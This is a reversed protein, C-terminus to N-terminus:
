EDPLEQGCNKCFRLGDVSPLVDGCFPCNKENYNGPSKKINVPNENKESESPPIISLVPPPIFVSSPIRSPPLAESAISDPIFAEASSTPRATGNANLESSDHKIADFLPKRAGNLIYAGGCVLSFSFCLFIYMLTSVSLGVGFLVFGILIMPISGGLKSHYSALAHDFTLKDRESKVNYCQTCIYTMGHRICYANGCLICVNSPPARPQAPVFVNKGCAYCLTM